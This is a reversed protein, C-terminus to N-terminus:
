SARGPSTWSDGRGSAGTGSCVPCGATARSEVRSVIGTELRLRVNRAAMPIGTVASLFMTVALSSATSNISIVAPQPTPVGVIYQDRARAEASLLDRRVTEPDLVGCCLLCPLTPALMQVRGSIHTIGRDNGHIAVGVDIGPLWFQYALQSLVARSGQSDTCCFFVDSDLLSRVTEQDRIDAALAKVNASPNISRIFESAVLVKPRLIDGATAGVVRNLNTAEVVDPDVLLFDQVGLHALQQAVLSGTGGLGVIAISLAGLKEQGTSGFARVQREYTSTSNQAAPEVRARTTFSEIGEGVEVISLPYEGDTPDFMAAHISDPGVILRAHPVDPIRRRLAPVLFGEGALDRVSPTVSGAFPHSHAVVISLGNSRARRMAEAVVTPPIELAAESRVRYDHDELEMSDCVLLRWSGSPTRVPRAFLFQASELPADALLKARMGRVGGWQFVLVDGPV